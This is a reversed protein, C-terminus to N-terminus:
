PQRAEAVALLEVYYPTSFDLLDSEPCRQRVAWLDRNHLLAIAWPARGELVHVVHNYDRGPMPTTKRISGVRKEAGWRGGKYFVRGYLIGSRANKTVRILRDNQPCGSDYFLWEGVTPTFSLEEHAPGVVHARAAEWKAKAEVGAAKRAELYRSAYELEGAETAVYGGRRYDLLDARVLADLVAGSCSLGGIPAYRPNRAKTAWGLLKTARPSAILEADTMLDIKPANM